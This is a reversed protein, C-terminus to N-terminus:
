LRIVCIEEKWGGQMGRYAWSSDKNPRDTQGRIGEEGQYNDYSKKMCDKM